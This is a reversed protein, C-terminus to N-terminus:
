QNGRQSKMVPNVYPIMFPYDKPIPVYGQQGGPLVYKTGPLLKDINMKNAQVPTIQSEARKIVMDGPQQSEFEKTADAESVGNNMRENLYSIRNYERATAESNLNNAMYSNLYPLSFNPQTKAASVLDFNTGKSSILHAAQNIDAQTTKMFETADASAKASDFVPLGLGRMASNFGDVLHQRTEAGPGPQLFDSNKLQQLSSDIASQHMMSTQLDAMKPQNLERWKDLWDPVKTLTQGAQLGWPHAPNPEPIPFTNDTPAQPNDAPDPLLSRGNRTVSPPTLYSAGQPTMGALRGEATIGTASNTSIGGERADVNQASASALSKLQEAAGPVNAMAGMQLSNWQNKDVNQPAAFPDIQQPAAQAPAAWSNQGANPAGGGQQFQKYQQPIALQGSGIQPAAQPSNPMNQAIQQPNPPPPSAMGIPLGAAAREKDIPPTTMGQEQRYQQLADAQSPMTTTSNLAPEGSSGAAYNNTQGSGNSRQNGPTAAWVPGTMGQSEQPQAGAGSTSAPMTAPNNSGQMPPAAGQQSSATTLQGNPGMVLPPQNFHQRMMNTAFLQMQNSMNTSATTAARATNESRATNNLRSQDAASMGAKGLATALTVAGPGASNAMMANGFNMLNQNPDNYSNADSQDYPDDM